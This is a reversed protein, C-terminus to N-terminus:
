SEPGVIDLDSIRWREDVGRVLTVLVRMPAIGAFVDIVNGEADLLRAGPPSDAVAAILASRSDVTTALHVDRLVEQPGDWRYGREALEGIVGAMQAHRESGPEFAADVLELHPAMSLHNQFAVLSAVIAPFDDGTNALSPSAAATTSTSAPAITPLTITERAPAPAAPEGGSCGVALAAVAVASRRVKRHRM